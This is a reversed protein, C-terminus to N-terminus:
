SAVGFRREHPDHFSRFYALFHADARCKGNRSLAFALAFAFRLGRRGGLFPKGLHTFRLVAGVFVGGLDGCANALEMALRKVLDHREHM